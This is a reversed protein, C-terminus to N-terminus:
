PCTFQVNHLAAKRNLSNFANSADIMLIAETEEDEYIRRMAHISAEIGGSLGACTQLPATAAVLEPKLLSMTASSVIRRLVEGIGIPRVGPSKDLPVLRGAVFARLFSSPIVETNLRKALDAVAQCLAIPKKKHQKSCLLRQWLDSDGGSPGAAGNVRKAAKCISEADLNEFIVEEVMKEPLPGQIVSGCGAECPRPHKEQLVKLVEPTIAHVGCQLIGICRLAASIKGQEMLTVFRQENRDAKSKKKKSLRNQIAVGESLLDALCGEKWMQLRKELYRIHDATKSNPAPKQLLLPFMISVMMLAVSEFAGQTNFSTIVKTVEEIFSEGANGTPLYFLNRRWRSTVLYANTVSERIEVGTLTGWRANLITDADPMAINANEQSSADVPAAATDSEHGDNEHTEPM